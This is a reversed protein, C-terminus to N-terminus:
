KGNMELMRALIVRVVGGTLVRGDQTGESLRYPTELVAVVPCGAVNLAVTCACKGCESSRLVACAERERGRLM